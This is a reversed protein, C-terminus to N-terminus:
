AAHKAPVLLLIYFVLNAGIHRQMTGFLRTPWTPCSCNLNHVQVAACHDAYCESDYATM